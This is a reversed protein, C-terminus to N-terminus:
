NITTGYYNSSIAIMYVSGAQRLLMRLTDQPLLAQSQATRDRVCLVETNRSPWKSAPWHQFGMLNWSPSVGDQFLSRLLLTLYRADGEPMSWLAGGFM